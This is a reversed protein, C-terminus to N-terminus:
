HSRAAETKYILLSCRSGNKCAIFVYEDVLSINMYSLGEMDLMPNLIDCERM